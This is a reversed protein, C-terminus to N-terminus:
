GAASTRPPISLRARVWPQFKYDLAHALAFSLVIVIVINVGAPLPSFNNSIQVLLDHVLYLAYSLGGIYILLAKVPQLATSGVRVVVEPAVTFLALGVSVVAKMSAHSTSFRWLIALTAASLVCRMMLGFDITTAPQPTKARSALAWVLTAFGTAFAFLRFFDYTSPESFPVRSLCVGIMFAFAGTPLSVARRARVLRTVVVGLLWMSFYAVPHLMASLVDSEPLHLAYISLGVAISASLLPMLLRPRFMIAIFAAYYYIEYALSWSPIYWKVPFLPDWFLTQVFLANGAIRIPGSSLGFAAMAVVSAALLLYYIPLIRVLRARVYHGVDRYDQLSIVCGSLVFFGVVAELSFSALSVLVVNPRAGIGEVHLHTFLVVLACTARLCELSALRREVPM